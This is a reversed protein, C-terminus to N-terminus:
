KTPEFGQVRHWHFGKIDKPIKQYDGIKLQIFESNYGSFNLHADFGSKKLSLNLGDEFKINDLETNSLKKSKKLMEKLYSKHNPTSNKILEKLFILLREKRTQNVAPKYGEPQWSYEM